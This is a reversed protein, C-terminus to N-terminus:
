IFLLLWHFTGFVPYFTIKPCNRNQRGKCVEHTNEDHKHTTTHALNAVAYSM